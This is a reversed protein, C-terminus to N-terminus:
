EVKLDMAAINAQAADATPTSPALNAAEIWDQRAGTDDGALRRLNGRELYGEANGPDMQLAWEVDALAREPEELYRYASARLVLIDARDPANGQARNLDSLASEFDNFAASTISRDVLLEVNNPQRALAATQIAHARDLEGADFWAQGAQILIPIQLFVFASELSASLKELEEGAARNHGLRHLAVAACHRAPDGGGLDVWTQAQELAQDPDNETLDMCAFYQAAQEQDDSQAWAPAPSGLILLCLGLASLPRRIASATISGASVRAKRARM